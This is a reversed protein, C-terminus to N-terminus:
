NHTDTYLCTCMLGSSPMPDGPAPAAPLQSSSWIPALFQVQDEVLARLARLWQSM